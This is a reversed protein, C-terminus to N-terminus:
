RIKKHPLKPQSVQLSRGSWFSVTTSVACTTLEDDLFWMSMDLCPFICTSLYLIALYIALYQLYSSTRLLLAGLNSLWVGHMRYREQYVQTKDVFPWGIERAATTRAGWKKFSWPKESKFEKTFPVQCFVMLGNTLKGALIIYLM